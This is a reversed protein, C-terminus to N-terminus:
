AFRVARPRWAERPLRADPLIAAAGPKTLARLTNAGDAKTHHRLSDLVAPCIGIAEQALRLHASEPISLPVEFAHQTCLSAMADLLARPGCPGPDTTTIDFSIIGEELVQLTWGPGFTTTSRDPLRLLLNPTLGTRLIELAKPHGRSVYPGDTALPDFELRGVGHWM